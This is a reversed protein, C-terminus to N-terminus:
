DVLKREILEIKIMALLDVLKLEIIIMPKRTNPLITGGKNGRPTVNYTAMPKASM